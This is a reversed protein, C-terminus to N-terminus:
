KPNNPMKLRHENWVYCILSLVFMVICLAKWLLLWWPHWWAGSHFEVGDSLGFAAFVVSLFFSLKKYRNSQRFGSIFFVAGIILWLFMEFLNFIQGIDM